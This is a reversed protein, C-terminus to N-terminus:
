SVEGAACGLGDGSRNAACRDGQGLRTRVRCATSVSDSVSYGPGLQDVVHHADHTGHHSPKLHQCRMDLNSDKETETLGSAVGEGCSETFSSTAVLKRFLCPEFLTAEPTSGGTGRVVRQSEATTKVRSLVTRRLANQPLAKRCCETERSARSCRSGGRNM